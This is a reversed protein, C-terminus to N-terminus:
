RGKGANYGERWAESATMRNGLSDLKIDHDKLIAHHDKLTVEQDKIRGTTLGMTFIWGIVTVIAPVWAAWTSM